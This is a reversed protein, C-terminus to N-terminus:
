SISDLIQIQIKHVKPTTKLFILIKLEFILEVFIYMSVCSLIQFLM